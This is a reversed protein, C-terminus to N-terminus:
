QADELISAQEQLYDKLGEMIQDVLKWQFDENLIKMEEVPNSLFLCEILANPYETPGNLMFNFAGNNGYEPLGLTLMRKYIARSLPRFGEYRYFTSTGIGKLPDASSNLHISLLLDPVSDRYFLIREKNDFTQDANRTLITKAGAKRLREDLKQTISLAITKEAINLAGAAGTNSGGHGADLAITLDNLKLSVPPHKIDVVLNNGEYFVRHGWFAAHRLYIYIRVHEDAVQELQIRKIFTISDPQDIWNTNISAGFVDMVIMAPDLRQQTQYPLRQFLQVQVQDSKEKGILKIKGTLSQPIFVGPALTRVHEAAIYAHRNPALQVRYDQDIKGDVHLRILSDLYGMKAGGLRDDGM